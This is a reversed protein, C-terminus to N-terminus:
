NFSYIDWAKSSISLLVKEKPALYIIGFFCFFGAVVYLYKSSFVWSSIRLIGAIHKLTSSAIVKFSIIYSLWSWNLSRGFNGETLFAM